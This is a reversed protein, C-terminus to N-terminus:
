LRATLYTQVADADAGAASDDALKVESFDVVIPKQNELAAITFRDGNRKIIHSKVPRLYKTGNQEIATVNGSTYIKVTM